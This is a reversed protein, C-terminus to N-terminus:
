ELEETRVIEPESDNSKNIEGNNEQNNYIQNLIFRIIFYLVLITLGIAIQMPVSFVSQNSDSKSSEAIVKQSAEIDQRDLESGIKNGLLGGIISVVAAIPIGFGTGAVLVGISGGKIAGLAAGGLAGILSGATEKERSM